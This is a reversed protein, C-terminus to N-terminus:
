GAAAMLRFEPPFETLQQNSDICVVEVEAEIVRDRDRDIRQHFTGRYASDLTFSTVVDLVDGLGAAKRFKATLAHVVILIGERNWEAVSKSRAGLFESRGRELFKLYNAHYVVGLCDTDEYYVTYSVRHEM